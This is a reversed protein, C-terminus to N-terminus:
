SNFDCYCRKMIKYFAANGIYNPAGSNELLDNLGSSKDRYDITIKLTNM